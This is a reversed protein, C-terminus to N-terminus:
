SPSAAAAPDAHVPHSAAPSAQVPRTDALCPGIRLSVPSSAPRLSVTELLASLFGLMVGMAMDYGPCAHTPHPSVKRQGGFVVFPDRRGKLRDEQMASVLSLVITDGARVEVPGITDTRLATRWVVEPVPRLQMAKDLAARLEGSARTLADPTTQRRLAAQLDWLSRDQMWEYLVGRLNGDVTPLFGMMVGILTSALREDIQGNAVPDTGHPFGTFLDCGLTGQQAPDGRVARVFTLVRQLLLQGHQEGVRRAEAGPQPQFTYRSPSQSHGPCTAVGDQWHWGGRDVYVGDPLGFWTSCVEALMEDVLDKVDIAIDDATGRSNVWQQLLAETRSRTLDFAQQETIKMIERNAVEAEADQGPTYDRGLYIQGFSRALRVNYGSVSYHGQVNDQVQQVLTKSCVLVGYPTRLVGGHSQRVATLVAQSHGGTRASLDELAIKWQEVAADFGLQKEAEFLRKILVNGITAQRTEERLRRDRIRQVADPDDGPAPKDADDVQDEAARERAWRGLEQLATLSPALAYLGWALTVLPRDAPLDVQGIGWQFRRPDGARAVGIFPDRQGSYSGPGASNRGALWGQVVEFQEGISANFAMFMLGREADPDDGFDPGYSMGRRVIRPLHDLEGPRTSRPHARRIHAFLPCKLGQPDADYNFNNGATHDILNVGETDRGMLMAKAQPSPVLDRFAKVDQRLKRLVLYTSDKWLRGQLGRDGRDNRYGLLLEGAAVADPGDGVAKRLVPQSIGDVYGFHGKAPGTPQDAIRRMAQVALVRGQSGRQPEPAPAALATEPAPDALATKLARRATDLLGPDAHALWFTVVAHVEALAVPDKDTVGHRQPLTWHMPHNREWDGLLGARAAMGERFEPSLQEITGADVGALLLGAHTFALNVFLPGQARYPPAGASILQSEVHAILRLVAAAGDLGVLVLCGHQLGAYPELIGAQVNNLTVSEPPAPAPAPSPAAAAVPPSNQFWRWAARESPTRLWGTPEPQLIAEALGALLLRAARRPIEAEANGPRDPFMDSLRYFALMAARAQEHLTGRDRAPAPALPAAKELALQQLDAVTLPSDEYYFGTEVQAQRVWAAYAPFGHEASLLYGDCNCFVLDLLPGLPWWIRRMYPEWGGDFSVSLLVQPTKQLQEVGLLSMRFSRIGRIADAAEGIAPTPDIERRAIGLAHLTQLVLTARTAYSRSDLAGILGRQLPALLTLETAGLVSRSKLRPAPEAM